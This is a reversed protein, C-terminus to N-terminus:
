AAAVGIEHLTSDAVEFTEVVPMGDIVKARARLVDLYVIHNYVDANEQNDWFSIVVAENRRAAILAIEEKFGKQERLLPIIKDQFLRRFEQVSDVRLKIRLNRTYM